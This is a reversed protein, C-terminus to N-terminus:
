YYSYGLWVQLNVVLKLKERTIIRDIEKTLLQSLSFLLPSGIRDLFLGDLPIIQAQTMCQVPPLSCSWGWSFSISSSLIATQPPRVFLRSLFLLSLCLLFPFICVTSHLIGSFLLSLYSLRGWHDICLFLSFCLIPFIEEFFNSIGLSCKM